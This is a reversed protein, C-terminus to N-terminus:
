QPDSKRHKAHSQALEIRAKSKNMKIETSQQTSLQEYGCFIIFGLNTLPNLMVEVGSGGQHMIGLVNLNSVEQEVFHKELM